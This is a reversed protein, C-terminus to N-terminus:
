ATSTARATRSSASPTCACSSSRGSSSAALLPDDDAISAAGKVRLRNPKEFDIFLLGVAPNVLVNGLSRFM